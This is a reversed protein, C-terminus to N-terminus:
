RVAELAGVLERQAAAVGAGAEIDAGLELLARELAAICLVVDFANVYGCHGLRFIKGKLDDQGGAITVGYDRMRKPIAAGDVGDPVRVATLVASSDDDPGFLEFGLGKVAARTARGLQIHRAYVADLGEEQLMGLAVRMGLVVSLAPTFATSAPSKRGAALAKGWDLYMRPSSVQRSREEARPAIAAFALGPPTMLAKQSGTVVVDYGWEDMRCEVAGLSSIADLVLLLESGAAARVASALAGADSVAGTATESHTTFLVKAAPHAAAFAAMEDPDPRQGRETSHVHVTAGFREALQAWRQGFRGFEAVLVEDGPEVLNAVASEMAGTGSSTFMAVDHKTGFLAPLSGLVEALVAQFAPTRHHILPAAMAALVEPPAATPGPTFLHTKIPRLEHM